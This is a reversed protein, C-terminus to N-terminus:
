PATRGASPKFASERGGGALLSALCVRLGTLRNAGRFAHRDGNACVSLKERDVTLIFPGADLNAPRLDFCLRASFDEEACQEYATRVGAERVAQEVVDLAKLEAVALQHARRESGLGLVVQLCAVAACLVAAAANSDWLGAYAIAFAASVAAVPAWYWRPRGLRRVRTSFEAAFDGERPDELVERQDAARLVRARAARDLRLWRRAYGPRPLALVCKHHAVTVGLLGCAGGILVLTPASAFAVWPVCVISYAAAMGLLEKL